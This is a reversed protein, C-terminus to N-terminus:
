AIEGSQRARAGTAAAAEEDRLAELLPLEAAMDEWSMRRRALRPSTTEVFAWLAGFCTFTPATRRQGASLGAESLAADRQRGDRFARRLRARVHARFWTQQAPELSEDCWHQGGALRSAITDAMGGPARGELRCSTVVHPADSYLVPLDHDLFRRVLARDEGHPVIPAGGIRDYAAVSMALNAGSITGHFPWPNLPDPDLLSALERATRGYLDEVAGNATAWPPLQAFESPDLEITGCVMAARGAALPALSAHVWDPAPRSDADTTLLYGGTGLQARAFDFATRRATGAHATADPFRWEALRLPAGIKRAWALARAATDDGTNNVLLAIVGPQPWRAMAVRCAELCSLIRGEEDRAPIAIAYTPRTVALAGGPM